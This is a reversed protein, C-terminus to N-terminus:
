ALSPSASPCERARLTVKWEGSEQRGGERALLEFVAHCNPAGAVATVPCLKRNADALLPRDLQGYVNFADALAFTLLYSVERGEHAAEGKCDLEQLM